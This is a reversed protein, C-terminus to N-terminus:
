PISCPFLHAFATPLDPIDTLVIAEELVTAINTVTPLLAPADDDDELVTLVGMQVGRTQEDEPNTVGEETVQIRVQFVKYHRKPMQRSIVQIRDSSRYIM